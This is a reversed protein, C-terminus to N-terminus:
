RVITIFGKYSVPKNYGPVTLNLIYFYTGDSLGSGTFQKASSYGKQHFVTHGWRNLIVLDNDPYASIGAIELADNRGDGNPTIVNPVTVLRFNSAQSAFPTVYVVQNSLRLSGVNMSAGSIPAGTTITGPLVPLGSYSPIAWVSNESRAIYSRNNNQKFVPGENILNHQLTIQVDAQGGNPNVLTWTSHVSSDNANAGSTVATFVNDFQSMGLVAASDKLTIAAPHYFQQFGTVGIPYDYAINASLSTRFFIGATLPDRGTVIFRNEDYGTLLGPQNIGGLTLKQGAIILHGQKFGLGGTIVLDSMLVVDAPNNIFVSSPHFGSSASVASKDILTQATLTGYLLNPQRFEITGGAYPNIQGTENVLSAGAGFQMEKGFMLIGANKQMFVRGGIIVDGFFGISDNSFIGVSSPGSINLTAQGFASHAVLILSTIFIKKMNNFM